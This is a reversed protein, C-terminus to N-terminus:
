TAMYSCCWSPPGHWDGVLMVERTLPLTLQVNRALPGPHTEGPITPSKQSIRRYRDPWAEILAAPLGM